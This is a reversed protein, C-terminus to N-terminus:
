RLEFFIVQNQGLLPVVLRNRKSDWEIDAASPIGDVVKPARFPTVEHVASTAWSSVLVRGDALVVVGDFQGPGVAAPAPSSMGPRWNLLTDGGFPVIVFRRNTVDWAIGNPKNLANTELAVSVAGTRPEIRFIRDPGPHQALGKADYQIGTDTVYLVSDPGVAIDNLFKAGQASLDVTSTPEGTRRNFGRVADIDTVWLTEGTIAMGKPAHLTVGGKGGAVFRAATLEGEGSLRAIFGNNDKRASPGDVNSVYFLDQEADYKVSEPNKLSDSVVVVRRARPPAYAVTMVTGTAARVSRGVLMTDVRPGAPAAAAPGGPSASSPGKVADAPPAPQNSSRMAAAFGASDARAIEEKLRRNGGCASSGLAAAAGAACWAAAAALRYSERALRAM